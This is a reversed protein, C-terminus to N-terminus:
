RMGWRSALQFAISIDPAKASIASNKVERESRMVVAWILGVMVCLIVKPFASDFIGRQDLGYLYTAVGAVFLLFACLWGSM